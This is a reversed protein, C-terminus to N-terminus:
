HSQWQRQGDETQSVPSCIHSVTARKPQTHLTRNAGKELDAGTVVDEGQAVAQNDEVGAQEHLLAQVDEELATLRGDRARM